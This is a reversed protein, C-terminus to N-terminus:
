REHQLEKITDQLSQIWADGDQTIRILEKSASDDLEAKGDFQCRGDSTPTGSLAKLKVRLRVNDSRLGDVTRAADDESAKLKAQYDASIDSVVQQTAVRADDKKIYENHVEKTWRTDASQEGLHFGGYFVCAVLLWPLAKKLFELM